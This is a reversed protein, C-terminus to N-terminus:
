DEYTLQKRFKSYFDRIFSQFGIYGTMDLSGITSNVEFEILLCPRPHENTNENHRFNVLDPDQMVCFKVYIRAFIFHTEIVGCWM